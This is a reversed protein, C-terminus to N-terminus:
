EPLLQVVHGYSISVCHRLIFFLIMFAMLSFPRATVTTSWLGRRYPDHSQSQVQVQDARTRIPM